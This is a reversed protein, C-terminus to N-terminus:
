TRCGSRTALPKPMISLYRVPNAARDPVPLGEGDRARIVSRLAGNILPAYQERHYGKIQRVAADVAAYDPVRDMYLLQAMAIHLIERVIKEDPMSEIFASLVHDIYMRHELATYFLNTALRRDEDSVDIAKLRKDLAINSYAGSITVDCLASLALKRADM